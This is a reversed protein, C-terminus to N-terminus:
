KSMKFTKTVISKRQALHASKSLLSLSVDIIVLHRQVSLSAQSCHSVSLIAVKKLCQIFL